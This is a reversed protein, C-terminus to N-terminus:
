SGGSARLTVGLLQYKIVGGDRFLCTKYFRLQLRQSRPSRRRLSTLPQKRSLGDQLGPSGDRPKIGTNKQKKKQQECRAATDCCRYCRRRRRRRFAANRCQVSAPTVCCAGGRARRRNASGWLSRRTKRGARIERQRKFFCTTDKKMWAPHITKKQKNTKYNDARKYM